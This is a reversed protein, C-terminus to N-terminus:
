ASSPLPVLITSGCQWCLLKFIADLKASARRHVNGCFHLWKSTEHNAEMTFGIATVIFTGGDDLVYSIVPVLKPKRCDFGGLTQDHFCWFLPILYRKGGEHNYRKVILDGATPVVLGTLRDEPVVGDSLDSEPQLIGCSDRSTM